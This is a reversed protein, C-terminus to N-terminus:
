LATRERSFSKRSSIEGTSISLLGVFADPFSLQDWESSDMSPYYINSVPEMPEEDPRLLRPDLREYVGGDASRLSRVLRAVSFRGLCYDQKEKLLM